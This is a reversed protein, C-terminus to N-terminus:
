VVPQKRNTQHTKKVMRIGEVIARNEKTLNATRNLIEKNDGSIVM